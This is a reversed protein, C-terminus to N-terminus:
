PKERARNEGSANSCNIKESVIYLPRGKSEDYIRSIYEGIIGITFLQVGGLFLVAVFVSTWGKVTTEPMFFKSYLGWLIMTFGLASSFAGLLTAIKLPKYSFSFVGDLAFRIMKMTSYKTDDAFREQRDFDVGIQRFGIWSVLGRLFRNREKMAGLADVVARDLLRFDGTDVPIDTTTLKRLLRYFVFATLRKLIGEGQRRRRRAYVVQYGRKWQEIMDLILEPPDQLDGDIIVVADGSAHDLGATVALQHGFNRSFSLVKVNHDTAAIQELEKLTGDSSGDDVFIIEYGQTSQALTTSCRQYMEQVNAEENFLPVVVSIVPV